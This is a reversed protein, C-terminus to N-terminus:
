VLKTYHSFYTFQGTQYGSTLHLKNVYPSLLLTSRLESDDIKWISIHRNEGTHWRLKLVIEEVFKLAFWRAPSLLVGTVIAVRLKVSIKIKIRFLALWLRCMKESFTLIWGPECRTPRPDALQLLSATHASSPKTLGMSALCCVWMKQRMCYQKTYLKSTHRTTHHNFLM